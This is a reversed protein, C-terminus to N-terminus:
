IRNFECFTGKKSLSLMAELIRGVSAMSSLVYSVSAVDVPMEEEGRIAIWFCM